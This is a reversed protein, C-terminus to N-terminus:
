AIDEFSSVKYKDDKTIEWITNIYKRHNAARHFYSINDDWYQIWLDKNEQRWEKEKDLLINRKKFELSKIM